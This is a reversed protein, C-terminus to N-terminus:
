ATADDLKSLDFREAVLVRPEGTPEEDGVPAVRFAIQEGERPMRQLLGTASTGPGDIALADLVQDGIAIDYARETVPFLDGTLTIQLMRTPPGPPPSPPEIGLVERDIQDEDKPAPLEVVEIRYGTINPLRQM